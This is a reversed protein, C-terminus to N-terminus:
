RDILALAKSVLATCLAFHISQYATSQLLLQEYGAQAQRATRLQARARGAATERQPGGAAGGAAEGVGRREGARRVSRACQACAVRV